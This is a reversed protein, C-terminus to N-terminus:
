FYINKAFVITNQSNSIHCTSHLHPLKVRVTEETEGCPFLISLVRFTILMLRAKNVSVFYPHRGHTVTSGAGPDSWNTLTQDIAVRSLQAIDRYV